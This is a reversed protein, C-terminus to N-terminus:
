GRAPVAAEQDLDELLPDTVVHSRDEHLHEVGGQGVPQAPWRGQADVPLGAPQRHRQLVGPVEVRAVVEHLRPVPQPVDGVVGRCSAPPRARLLPQEPQSLAVGQRPVAPLAGHAEGAVAAAGLVAQGVRGVTLRAQVVEARAVLGEEAVDVRGHAGHAAHKPGPLGRGADHAPIGGIIGRAIRSPGAGAAAVSAPQGAMARSAGAVARLFGKGDPGSLLTGVARGSGSEGRGPPSGARWTAPQAASM